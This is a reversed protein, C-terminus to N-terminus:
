ISYKHRLKYSRKKKFFEINSILLTEEFDVEVEDDELEIKKLFISPIYLYMSLIVWGQFHLFWTSSIYTPIPKEEEEDEDLLDTLELIKIASFSRKIFILILKESFFFFFFNKFFLDFSLLKKYCTSNYWSSNWYTSYGVKNLLPLSPQGM